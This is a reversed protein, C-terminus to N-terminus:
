QVQQGGQCHGVPSQQTESAKRFPIDVTHVVQGSSAAVFHLSMSATGIEHIVFGNDSSYGWKLHEHVTEQLPHLGMGGVGNVVYHLMGNEESFHQMAHDHGNLYLLPIESSVSEKLLSHLRRQVELEAGSRKRSVHSFVPRHAAVIRLMPPSATAQLKEELWNWQRAGADPGAYENSLDERFRRSELHEADVAGELAVSDVVIVEISGEALPVEFSYSPEPLRWRKSRHSHALLASVNGRHDHDGLSIWWKVDALDELDYVNEFSEQFQRDDLSKVGRVYFNDGLSLVFEPSMSKAYRAMARAVMRQRDATCSKHGIGGAEELDKSRYGADCAAVGFDGLSFFYRHGAKAEFKGTSQQLGVQWAALLLISGAVAFAVSAM